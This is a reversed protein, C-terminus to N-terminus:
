KEIVQKLIEELRKVQTDIRSNEEAFQYGETSYKELNEPNSFLNLAKILEEETKGVIGGSLYKVVGVDTSVFACKSAM